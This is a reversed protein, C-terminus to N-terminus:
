ENILGENVNNNENIGLKADKATYDYDDNIENIRGKRKNKILIFYIFVSAMGIFVVFVIILIIILVYNTNSKQDNDNKKEKNDYFGFKKIDHNFVWQYKNFMPKGFIWENYNKGNSFLINFYKKDGYTMFLDNTNLKFEYGMERSLFNLTINKIEYNKPCIYYKYNVGQYLMNGYIEKNNTVNIECKNMDIFIDTINKELDSPAYIFGFEIMLNATMIKKNYSNLIIKNNGVSIEDFLFSYKVYVSDVYGKIDYFNDYSYINKNIEHPYGGIIFEGEEKNQFNMFFTKYSIINSMKLQTFFNMNSHLNFNSDELCLGIVGGSQNYSMKNAYYFSFYNIKVINSYDNTFYFTENSNDGQLLQSDYFISDHKIYTYSSSTDNKYFSSIDNNSTSIFKPNSIFFPYDIFKLTTNIEQIPTGLKLTIYIDNMILYTIPDEFEKPNHKTYFKYKIVKINECQILYIIYILFFLFNINIIEHNM